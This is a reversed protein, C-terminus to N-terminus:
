ETTSSNMNIDMNDTFPLAIGNCAQIPVSNKWSTSAAM